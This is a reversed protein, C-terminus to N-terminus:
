NAQYALLPSFMGTSAPAEESWTTGALSAPWTGFTPTSGGCASAGQCYIGSAQNNGGIAEAIGTTGITQQSNTNAVTTYNAATDNMNSCFWIERGGDAGGPGVQKTTVAGSHGGTTTNSVSATNVILTSPRGTTADNVYMAMQVNTTGVVNNYFALAKITTLRPVLGLRCAITNAQGSGGFGMNVSPLSAYWKNSIVGASFLNCRINPQSLTCDQAMTFGGFAGSNNYQVQGNSGGPTGGGGGSSPVLQYNTGDSIVGTCIPAAATGGTLTKTAAGGITSTTPTLTTTGAGQTCFQFFARAAFGATGAQPLTVAVSGANTYNVLNGCDGSVVTDTTGSVTRITIGADITGSTTIPNPSAVNGCSAGVSTVSGGGSAGTVADQVIQAQVPALLAASCLVALLLKKMSMTGAGLLVRNRKRNKHLM